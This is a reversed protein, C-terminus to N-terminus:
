FHHNRNDFEFNDFASLTVGKNQPINRCIYPLGWIKPYTAAYELVVGEDVGDATGVVRRVVGQLQNLVVRSETANETEPHRLTHRAM